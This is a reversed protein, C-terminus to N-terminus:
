LAPVSVWFEEVESANWDKDAAGGVVLQLRERPSEGAAGISLFDHLVGDATRANEGVLIVLAQKGVDSATGSWRAFGDEDLGGEEVKTPPM